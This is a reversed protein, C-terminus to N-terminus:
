ITEFDDVFCKNDIVIDNITIKAKFKLLFIYITDTKM